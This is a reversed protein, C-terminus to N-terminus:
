GWAKNRHEAMKGPIVQIIPNSFSSGTLPPPNKEPGRCMTERGKDDVKFRWGMAELNIRNEEKIKKDMKDREPQPGRCALYWEIDELPIPESWRTVWVTMPMLKEMSQLLGDFGIAAPFGLGRDNDFVLGEQPTCTWTPMGYRMLQCGISSFLTPGGQFGGKSVKSSLIKFKPDDGEFICQQRLDSILCCLELVTTIGLGEERMALTVGESQITRDVKDVM